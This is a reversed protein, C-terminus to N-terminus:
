EYAIEMNPTPWPLYGSNCYFRFRQFSQIGEMSVNYRRLTKSLREWDELEEEHAVKYIKRKCKECGKSKGEKQKGLVEIQESLVKIKAEECQMSMGEMAKMDKEEIAKMEKEEEKARVKKLITNGKGSEVKKLITDGEGSKVKEVFQEMCHDVIERLSPGKKFQYWDEVFYKWNCIVDLKHWTQIITNLRDKWQWCVFIWAILQVQWGALSNAEKSKSFINWALRHYSLMRKWERSLKCRGTAVTQLYSFSNREGSSYKPLFIERSMELKLKKEGSPENEPVNITVTEKSVTPGTALSPEREKVGQGGADSAENESIIAPGITSSPEREKVGQGGQDSTSAERGNDISSKSNLEIEFDGELSGLQGELFRKSEADSPDPLDLPLQIIKQFFKDALEENSKKSKNNGKDGYKKIIARDIMKKEMGLIVDIKCAALVLNIATLVQLIISEQCRDLDDVLVVIRLNGKFQPRMKPFTTDGVNNPSWDWRICCWLFAIITCLWHPRKGIEEKLFNIDEIVQQHYGLKETHDPLSIYGAIQTSIPKLIAMTSKAVTWLIVVITAALSGYKLQGLGRQKSRELLLWVLWTICGALITALLCPLIVPVWVSHKHKEWCTNLWQALTMTEEMEKTIKVALGAWAESENRYEWANYRVTLIAPVAAEVSGKNNSESKEVNREIMNSSGVLALSKYVARYKPEYNELFNFLRDVEGQFMLSSKGMGWEGSIGVTIPSKVYPNLFFAALGMAYDKRGLNDSLTPQESAQETRKNIENLVKQVNEREKDSLGKGEREEESLGKEQNPSQLDAIDGGRMLFEQTMDVYGLKADARVLNCQTADKDKRQQDFFAKVPDNDNDFTQSSLSEKATGIGAASAWLLLLKEENSKCNRVLLEAIAAADDRNNVQVAYHLATKGDCDREQLPQSGSELLKKMIELHGIRAAKHLATEGLFDGNSVYKQQDQLCPLLKEVLILNGQAAAIHLPTTGSLDRLDVKHKDTESSNLLLSHVAHEYNQKVAYHLPTQGDRDKCRYLGSNRRLLDGCLDEHQYGYGYGRSAAAHLDGCLLAHGRSAAAHLVTRGNKDVVKTLDINTAYDICLFIINSGAYRDDCDVAYHLTTKGNGDSDLPNAGNELLKRVLDSYGKRASQRLVNGIDIKHFYTKFRKSRLLLMRFIELNNQAAAMGLPTNGEEDELDVISTSMVPSNFIEANILVLTVEENQKRVAHHLPIQGSQDKANLEAGHRVLLECLLPYGSSSATHLPTLGDADSARLLEKKNNCTELLIEAVELMPVKDGVWRHLATKKKGDTEFSDAGWDLLKQVAQAEGHRAALRLIYNRVNCAQMAYRESEDFRKKSRFAKWAGDHIHKRVKVDSLLTEDIFSNAYHIVSMAVQLPGVDKEETQLKTRICLVVFKHTVIPIIAKWLVDNDWSKTDGRLPAVSEFTEKLYELLERPEPSFFVVFAPVYRDSHKYLNKGHEGYIVNEIMKFASELMTDERREKKSAEANENSFENVFRSVEESFEKIWLPVIERGHREAQTSGASDLSSWPHSDISRLTHTQAGVRALEYDNKNNLLWNVVEYNLDETSLLLASEKGEENVVVEGYGETGPASGESIEVILMYGLGHRFGVEPGRIEGDAGATLWGDLLRVKDWKNLLPEIRELNQKAEEVTTLRFGRPTQCSRNEKRFEM